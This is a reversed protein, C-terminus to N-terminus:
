HLMEHCRKRIWEGQDKSVARGCRADKPHGALTTPGEGQPLGSPRRSPRATNPEGPSYTTMNVFSLAKFQQGVHIQARGHNVGM